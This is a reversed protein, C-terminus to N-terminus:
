NLSYSIVWWWSKNSAHAHHPKSNLSTMICCSLVLNPTAEERDGTQSKSISNGVTAPVASLVKDQYTLKECIYQLEEVSMLKRTMCFGAFPRWICCIPLRGINLGMIFGKWTSFLNFTNQIGQIRNTDAKSLGNGNYFIAYFWHNYLGCSKPNQFFGELGTCVGLRGM